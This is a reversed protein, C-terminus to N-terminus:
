PAGAPPLQKGDLDAHPPFVADDLIFGQEPAPEGKLMKEREVVFAHRQILNDSTSPTVYYGEPWVAPRPYDPFLPREFLYRYYSGLPDSSTSVAYCIAYSGSGGKPRPGGKKGAVKEEAPPQYLAKALGPQGEVGPLSLQVPGGSKGPPENKKF